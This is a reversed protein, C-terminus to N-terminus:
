HMTTQWSTRTPTLDKHESLHTAIGQPLNNTFDEVIMLNRLADFTTVKEAQLWRDFLLEKERVFEVYTLSDSKQFSRYKQRYAEPVLSYIRLVAKKVKEYDSADQLPLSSYAEQASLLKNFREDAKRQRKQERAEQLFSLFNTRRKKGQGASRPSLPPSVATSSCAAERDHNEAVSSPLAMSARLLPPSVSHRQGLVEDM